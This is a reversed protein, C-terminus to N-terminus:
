QLVMNVKETAEEIPLHYLDMIQKIIYDKTAGLSQCAIILNQLSLRREEEIGQEIGQEIGEEIGQRMGKERGREFKEWYREELMMYMEETKRDQKVYKVRQHLEKIFTTKAHEAFEDTTNEIYHLFELVEASVDDATGKTNFIIKTTGDGMTLANDEECRNQFTYIHRGGKYFDSTCIFIIYSKKLKTYYREGKELLDLDINAQYYRARKPVQRFESAQMEVNYANKKDDNGYIDMRIGKSDLEHHLTKQSELLVIKRISVGLLLELM